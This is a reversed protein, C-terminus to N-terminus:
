ELAVSQLGGSYAKRIVGVLGAAQLVFFLAFSALSVGAVLMLLPLVSTETAIAIIVALALHPILSQVVLLGMAAFAERMALGVCEGQTMGQRRFVAYSREAADSSLNLLAVGTTTAIIAAIAVIFVTDAFNVAVGADIRLVYAAVGQSSLLLLTGLAVGAYLSNLAGRVSSYDEEVLAPLLGRPKTRRLGSLMLRANGGLRLYCAACLSLGIHLIVNYLAEAGGHLIGILPICCVMLASYVFCAISLASRLRPHRLPLIQSQGRLLTLPGIRRVSWSGYLGIAFNTAVSAVLAICLGPLSFRYAPLEGSQLSGETALLSIGPLVWQATAGAVLAGLTAGVLSLALLIGLQLGQAEGATLGLLRWQSFDSALKGITARSVQTLSFFACAAVVVYVTVSAIRLESVLGDSVGDAAELWAFHVVCYSVLLSIMAITLALPALQPARSRLYRWAPGRM